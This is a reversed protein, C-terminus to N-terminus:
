QILASCVPMITKEGIDTALRNIGSVATNYPDTNGVENEENTVAWESMDDDVETM